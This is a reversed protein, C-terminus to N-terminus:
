CISARLRSYHSNLALQSTPTRFTRTDQRSVQKRGMSNSLLISSIYIEKKLGKKKMEEDDEEGNEV